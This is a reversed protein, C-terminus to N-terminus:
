LRSLAQAAFSKLRVLEPTAWDEQAIDPLFDAVVRLDWYPHHYYASGLTGKYTDLFKDALELSFSRALNARMHAIDQGPDGYSATTWDVIASLREPVGTEGPLWLTNGPHYDRHIFAGPVTPAPELAVGVVEQWIGSLRRLRASRLQEGEYYPRYLPLTRAAELPDIHHVAVIALALQRVFDSPNSPVLLRAGPARSLLLAPVDCELAEPDAGLLHPACIGV